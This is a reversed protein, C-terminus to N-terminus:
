STVKQSQHATVLARLREQAQRRLDLDGSKDAWELQGYGRTTGGGVGVFGDHIDWAVLTLLARASDWLEDAAGLREVTFTLTGGRQVEKSFLLGKDAHAIAEDYKVERRQQAVGGTFREIANHTREVEHREAVVADRTRVQARAGRGDARAEQWGFMRCALCQGCEQELCAGLGVSRLIYETRARFIGKLSRGTLLAQDGQKRNHALNGGPTGDWSHLDGVLRFPAEWVDSRREAVSLPTSEALVKDVLAPGSAALFLRLGERNTLDLSGTTIGSIEIDGQGVSVGNGLLPTWTELATHWATRAEESLDDARFYAVYSADVEIQKTMRLTSPRAAGRTRDIATSHDSVLGPPELAPVVGLVRVKSSTVPHEDKKKTSKRDPAAEGAPLRAGFLEEEFSPNTLRLHDRLSGALTPGPIIPRKRHDEVPIGDPVREGSKLPPVDPTLSASRSALSFAVKYYDIRTTM